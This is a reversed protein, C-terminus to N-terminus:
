KAVEQIIEDRKLIGKIEDGEVVILSSVHGERMTEFRRASGTSGPNITVVPRTMVDEAIASVSIVDRYYKRGASEEKRLM